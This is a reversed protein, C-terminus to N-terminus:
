NVTVAIKKPQAPPQKPLTVTLVGNEYQAAIRDTQVDDSLGISRTRTIAATKASTDEGGTQKPTVQLTLTGDVVEVQITDRDVGPLEARVYTNEKDEYLDVPFATELSPGRFATGFLRDIESELGGWPSRSFTSAAPVFSRHTPYTYRILRM